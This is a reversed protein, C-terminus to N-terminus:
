RNLNLKKVGLNERHDRHGRPSLDTYSNGGLATLVVLVAVGLVRPAPLFRTRRRPPAVVPPGDELLETLPPLEEPSPLPLWSTPEPAETRAPSPASAAEAAALAEAVVSEAEAVIAAQHEPHPDLLAHLPPLGDVDDPLPLWAAADHPEARAPSPSVAAEIAALDIVEPEADPAKADGLLVEISPLAHPDPVPLWTAADHPEARAPSPGIKHEVHAPLTPRQRRSKAKGVQGRGPPSQLQETIPEGKTDAHSRDADVSFVPTPRITCVSWGTFPWVIVTPVVCPPQSASM